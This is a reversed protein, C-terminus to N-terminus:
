AEIGGNQPYGMAAPIREGMLEAEIIEKLQRKPLAGTAMLPRGEKPIFLISPISRIGFAAALEEEV